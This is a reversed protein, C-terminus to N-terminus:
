KCYYFRGDQKMHVTWGPRLRRQVEELQLNHNDNHAVASRPNLRPTSPQQVPTSSGVPGGADPGGGNGGGGATQHNINSLDSIGNEPDTQVPNSSINQQQQQQQAQQGSYWPNLFM